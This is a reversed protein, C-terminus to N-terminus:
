AFRPHVSALLGTEDDHLLVAGELAAGTFSLDLIVSKKDPSGNIGAVYWRDDHRRAIVVYDGPRGSLYRTEDWVTPLNKFFAKYTDPLERLSAAADAIHQVGSEFVVALATEHGNTTLKPILQESYIVPTYDM